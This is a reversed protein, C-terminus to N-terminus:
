RATSKQRCDDYLAMIFRKIHMRYNNTDEKNEHNNMSFIRLQVQEFEFYRTAYHEFVPHTTDMAGLSSIHYFSQFIARRVRQETAKLDKPTPTFGSYTHRLEWLSRLSLDNIGKEHELAHMITTLDEAGKEYCIGLDTLTEKICVESINKHNRTSQQPPTLANGAINNLSNKIQEMSREMTLSKAVKSLVSLVEKKNVPKTIYAEVGSEYADAIIEKTEIQSLMVAKGSFTDRIRNLTEIGDEGPMLLDIILIDTEHSQLQEETLQLGDEAEGTVPGLETEILHKLMGRVAPDDDVIFYNM